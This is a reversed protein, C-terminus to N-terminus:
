PSITYTNHILESAKQNYVFVLFIVYIAMAGLGVGLAAHALNRALRSNRQAAIADGNRNAEQTQSSYILAAIGLPLCCCLMTFISYAMYDPEKIPQVRTFNVTQTSQIVLGQNYREPAPDYPSQYRPPVLFNSGSSAPQNEMYPPPDQVEPANEELKKYPTKSMKDM